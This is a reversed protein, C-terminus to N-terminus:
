SHHLSILQYDLLNLTDQPALPILRLKDIETRLKKLRIVRQDFPLRSLWNRLLPLERQITSLFLDVEHKLYGGFRESIIRVASIALAPKISDDIPAVSFTEIHGWIMNTFPLHLAISYYPSDPSVGRVNEESCQRAWSAVGEPFFNIENESIRRFDLREATSVVHGFLAMECVQVHDYGYCHQPSRTRDYASRRYVGWLPFSYGYRRIVESARDVPGNMGRTDIRDEDRPTAFLNGAEDILTGYSYALVISEDGELLALTKEYYDDAILDNGSRCAVYESRCGYRFRYGQAISGLNSPFRNYSFRTDSKTAEVCIDQTADTSGNDHIIVSFDEFTQRYLCDLLGPLHNAENFVPLHIELKPPKMESQSYILLHHEM